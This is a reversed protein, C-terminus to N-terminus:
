KTQTNDRTKAPRVMSAVQGEILSARMAARQEANAFPLMALLRKSNQALRFTKNSVRPKRSINEIAM